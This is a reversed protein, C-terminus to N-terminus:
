SGTSKYHRVGFRFFLLSLIFFILGFLPYLTVVLFSYDSKGLIYSIPFYSVSAIPIIYLFIKQFWQKYITIPYQGLQVGGYTFSNMFELSEVSWFSITAQIIFLSMFVVVMAAISLFLLFTEVSLLSINLGHIAWSLVIVGQLLRGIRLIQLETGMIQLFFSRPRLLVRDFDGSKVHNAFMDYGRTAAESIAFSINVSGYFIAIEEISWNGLSGFREFLFIIGIFEIGSLAMFGLITFIFSTKYAMQSRISISIYQFYLKLSNM